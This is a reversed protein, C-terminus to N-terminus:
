DMENKLGELIEIAKDCNDCIKKARQGYDNMINHADWSKENYMRKLADIALNIAAKKTM